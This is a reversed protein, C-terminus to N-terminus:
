LLDPFRKQHRAFFRAGVGLALASIAAFRALLSWDPWQGFMIVRRYSNILWYMPNLELLIGLSFQDREVVEVRRHQMTWVEVFEDLGEPPGAPPYLVRRAKAVPEAAPAAVGAGPASSPGPDLGTPESSFTLRM